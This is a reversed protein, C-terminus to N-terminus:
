WTVGHRLWLAVSAVWAGSVVWVVAIGVVWRRPPVEVADVELRRSRYLWVAVVAQLLAGVVNPIKGAGEVLPGWDYIFWAGGGLVVFLAVIFAADRRGLPGLYDEIAHFLMRNGLITAALFGEGWFVALGYRVIDSDAMHVLRGYDSPRGAFFSGWFPYSTDNIVLMAGFLLLALRLPYRARQRTSLWLFVIGTTVGVVSGAATVIWQHDGGNAMAWGGGDLTISMGTFRGGVIWATVGHGLVEHVLVAGLYVAYAWPLAFALLPGVRRLTPQTELDM